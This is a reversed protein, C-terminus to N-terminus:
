KNELNSVQKLDLPGYRTEIFGVVVSLANDDLKLTKEFLSVLLQERTSKPALTRDYFLRSEPVKLTKALIRLNEAQPVNGREMKQYTSLSIGVKASFEEQTMKGRLERLNDAFVERITKV